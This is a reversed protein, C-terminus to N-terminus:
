LQVTFGWSRQHPLDPLTPAKNATDASTQGPSSKRVQPQHPQSAPPEGLADVIARLTDEPVDVRERRWNEYSASVGLAEARSILESDTVYEMIEEPPGPM